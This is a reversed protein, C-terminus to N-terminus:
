AQHLFILSNGLMSHISEDPKLLSPRAYFPVKMLPNKCQHDFLNINLLNDEKLALQTFHKLGDVALENASVARGVGGESINECAISTKKEVILASLLADVGVRIIMFIVWTLRIKELM